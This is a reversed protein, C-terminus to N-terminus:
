NGCILIEGFRIESYAADKIDIEIHTTNPFTSFSNLPPISIYGGSSGSAQYYETFNVIGQQIFRIELKKVFSYSPTNDKIILSQITHTSGLSIIIHDGIKTKFDTMINGDKLAASPQITSTPTLDQTGQPCEFVLQTSQNSTTSQPYAIGSTIPFAAKQPGASASSQSDVAADADKLQDYLNKAQTLSYLDGCSSIFLPSVILCLILRAAVWGRFTFLNGIFSVPGGNVWILLLGQAL